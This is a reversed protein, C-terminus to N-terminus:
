RLDLEEVRLGALHEAVEDPGEVLRNGVMMVKRLAKAGKLGQLTELFNYNVNLVELAPMSALDPLASFRCAAMELYRLQGM